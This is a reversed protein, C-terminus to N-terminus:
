VIRLGFGMRRLRRIEEDRGRDDLTRFFSQDFDEDTLEQLVIYALDCIRGRFDREIYDPMEQPLVRTDELLMDLDREAAILMERITWSRQGRLLTWLVELGVMRANPGAARLAGLVHPVAGPGFWCLIRRANLSAVRDGQVIVRVLDAANAVDPLIVARVIPSSMVDRSEPTSLVQSLVQPHIAM